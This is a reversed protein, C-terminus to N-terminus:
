RCTLSLTGHLLCSLALRRVRPSWHEQLPPQASQQESTSEAPASTCLPLWALLRSCHWFPVETATSMMGLLARHALPEGHQWLTHKPTSTHRQVHRGSTVHCGYSIIQPTLKITVHHAHGASFTLGWEKSM